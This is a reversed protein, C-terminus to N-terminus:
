DVCKVLVTKRSVETDPHEADWPDDTELVALRGPELVVLVLSPGSRNALKYGGLTITMHGAVEGVVVNDYRTSRVESDQPVFDNLQRQKTLIVGQGDDARAFRVVNEARGAFEAVQPSRENDECGNDGDWGSYVWEGTLVAHAKEPEVLVPKLDEGFALGTCALAAALGTAM